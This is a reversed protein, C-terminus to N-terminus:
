SCMSPRDAVFKQVLPVAKDLLTAGQALQRAGRELRTQNSSRAGREMEKLAKILSADAKRWAVLLPRAPQYLSAIAKLRADVARVTKGTEAAQRAIADDDRDKLATTLLPVQTELKAHERLAACFGEAFEASWTAGATAASSAPSVVPLSPVSGISSCAALVLTMAALLVKMDWGWEVLPLTGAADIRCPLRPCSGDNRLPGMSAYAEPIATASPAIM